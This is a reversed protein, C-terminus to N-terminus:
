QQEIEKELTEIRDVATEIDSQVYYIQVSHLVVGGLLGLLVFLMLKSAM